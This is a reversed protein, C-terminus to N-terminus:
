LGNRRGTLYVAYATLALAAFVAMVGLIAVTTVM